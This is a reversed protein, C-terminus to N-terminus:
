WPPLTVPKGVTDFCIETRNGPIRRLSVTKQVGTPFLQTNM